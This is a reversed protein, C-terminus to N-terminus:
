FTYAWIHNAPYCGQFVDEYCKNERNSTQSSIYKKRKRGIKKAVPIPYKFFPPLNAGRKLATVSWFM